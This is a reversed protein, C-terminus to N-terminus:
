ESEQYYYYGTYDKSKKKKKRSQITIFGLIKANAFKLASLAKKIETTVSIGCKCVFVVNEVLQALASSDAVINVPPTDFLIYDYREKVTQIFKKMNKSSLLETPNPPLNGATICDLNIDDMHYIVADLESFGGLVNSLGEKNKLNLYHHVRPRRLDADVLLVRHETQALSVALNICTTTKGEAALASTVLVCKGREIDALAYMLNTRATKLAETLLPNTNKTILDADSLIHRRKKNIMFKPIQM